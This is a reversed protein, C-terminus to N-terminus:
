FAGRGCLGLIRRRPPPHHHYLRLDFGCAYIRLASGIPDHDATRYLDLHVLAIRELLRGPRMPIQLGPLRGAGRDEDGSRRSIGHFFRFKEGLGPLIEGSRQGAYPYQFGRGGPRPWHRGAYEGVVAGIHDLDLLGARLGADAASLALSSAVMSKGIGGKGGTVGVIRRVGSLRKEIVALRPDM